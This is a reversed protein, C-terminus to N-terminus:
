HRKADYVELPRRRIAVIKMGNRYTTGTNYHSFLSKTSKVLEKINAYPVNIGEFGTKYNIFDVALDNEDLKKPNGTLHKEVKMQEYKKGLYEAIQWMNGIIVADETEYRYRTRGYFTTM